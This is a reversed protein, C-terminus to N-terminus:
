DHHNKWFIDMWHVLIVAIVCLCLFAFAAIVGVNASCEGIM